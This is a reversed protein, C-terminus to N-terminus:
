KAAKFINRAISWRHIESPGEVIRYIRALRYIYELPMEKSIGMGGFLQIARDAVRTLMETAHIKIMSAEKRVDKIGQDIKWAAEYNMLRAQHIEMASEAIWWQIAQRESLPKGFTERQQAFEVMMDLCRQALGVCRAGIEMRRIGLRNQLPIFAWGEEGLIQEESVEVNDYVVEYPHLEGITPFSSPISLGPTDKDVLFATIGGKGRKEKDTVAITIFFDAKNAKTIFIKTGNLVYKDGKKEAKMQIGAADSGAAPETLALSSKLKGQAYPVFYKDRQQENCCEKLYALNPADPPLIFPVISKRMEEVVICKEMAGLGQGGDEEPVDIGWLNLDKAKQLIKEEIEPPLIPDDSLGRNAEREIALKEYPMLENKVFKKMLDRLMNQEDTFNFDM